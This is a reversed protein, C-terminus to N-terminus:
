ILQRLQTATLGVNMSAAMHSRLQPEVGPTAALAGVTAL